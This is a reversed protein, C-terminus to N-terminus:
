DLKWIEVVAYVEEAGSAVSLGLGSGDANQTYIAANIQTTQTLTLNGVLPCTVNGPATPEQAAFCSLGAILVTADDTRRIVSKCRDVRYGISDYRILYEGAPLTIQRSVLTAGTITNVDLTNLNRIVNSNATSGGGNTGSPQVERARFYNSQRPVQGTEFNDDGRLITTM